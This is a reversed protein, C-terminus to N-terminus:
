GKNEARRTRILAIGILTSITAIALLGLISAGTFALRPPTKKAPVSATASPPSPVSPVNPAGPTVDILKPRLTMTPSTTDIGLPIVLPSFRPKTTNSDRIVYAGPPLNTITATGTADTRATHLQEESITNPVGNRQLDRIREHDQPDINHLKAVTIDINHGQPQDDAFAAPPELDIVLTNTEQALAPTAGIILALSLVAASIANTKM